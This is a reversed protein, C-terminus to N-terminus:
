DDKKNYVHKVIEEVDNLHVEVAELRRKGKYKDNPKETPIWSYRNKQKPSRGCIYSVLDLREYKDNKGDMYLKRLSYIWNLSEPTDYDKLIEVLQKLDVPTLNKESIKEHADSIIKQAHGKTCKAECVLSKIINGSSDRKFALCDDGTRGPIPKAKGGEQRLRELQQFAQDHCRFLFVPVEWEDEDFPSYNEAIIGAFIEGFYGKLTDIHLLEPYGSAPDNQPKTNLPDLSFDMIDRLHRRYDDHANQVLSKLDNLIGKRQSLNEKLLRHRYKKTKSEKIPGNIWLLFKNNKFM